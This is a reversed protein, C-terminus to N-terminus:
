VGRNGAGAAAANASKVMSMRAPKFGHDETLKQKQQLHEPTMGYDLYALGDPVYLFRLPLGLREAGEDLSRQMDAHTRVTPINCKWRLPSSLPTVRDPDEILSMNQYLAHTLDNQLNKDPIHDSAAKCSGFLYFLEKSSLRLFTDADRIDTM